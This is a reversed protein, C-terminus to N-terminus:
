KNLLQHQYNGKNKHPFPLQPVPKGLFTCLENWGDGQEWNVVLLQQPNDRFHAKVKSCHSMYTQLYRKQHGVPSPMGYIWKRMPTEAEGFYNVLSKIWNAPHRYTMIFFAEPFHEQLYPFLVPWPNDVFGDFAKLKSEVKFYDIAQSELLEPSYGCVEYGLIALATGLTQVGTKHFGIGFVKNNM